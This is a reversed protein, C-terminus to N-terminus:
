SRGERPDDFYDGSNCFREMMTATVEAISVVLLEPDSIPVADAKSVPPTSGMLALLACRSGMETSFVLGAHEQPVQQGSICGVDSSLGSCPELAAGLTKPESGLHPGTFSFLRRGARLRFGLPVKPRLGMRSFLRDVDLRIKELM